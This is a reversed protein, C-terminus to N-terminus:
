PTFTIGYTGSPNGGGIMSGDIYIYTAAGGNVNGIAISEKVGTSGINSCTIESNSDACASRAYLVSNYSTNANITDADLPGSVARTVAYVVQGGPQGGCSGQVIPFASLGTTSGRVNMGTGIELPIPVPDNCDLGTSLDLHLQYTGEDNAGFGDVFLFVTQGQQVRISVVEGGNLFVQNQPDYSDNCLLTANAAADNCAAGVYLVSDFSTQNRVLNGTLFGNATAKVAYIRDAAVSPCGQATHDGGNVTSGSVDLAGLGITVPIATGCTSGPSVVVEIHCKADCGDGPSTNGDDCQETPELKGDGCTPKCGAGDLQCGLCKVGDGKSYGLDICTHGNLFAGDCVEGPELKQGDCTPACDSEDLQCAACKMGAPDSFGVEICTHGNLLAGDCVEGPEVKQGDCTAKCLGFNVKCAATCVLGAPDSYMFSTCDFTGFDMQDCQEGAQKIGDGCGPGGSSTSSTTMGSSTTASSAGGAGGVGGPGAATSSSDGGQGTSAVMTSTTSSPSSSSSTSATGGTGPGSSTAGSDFLEDNGLGGCAGASVLGAGLLAAFAWPAGQRLSGKSM